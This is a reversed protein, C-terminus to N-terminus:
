NLIQPIQVPLKSWVPPEYRSCNDVPRADYQGVYKECYGALGCCTERLEVEAEYERPNRRPHYLSLTSARTGNTLLAGWPESCSLSWVLYLAYNYATM